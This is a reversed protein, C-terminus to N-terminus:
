QSAAKSSPKPESRPPAFSVAGYVSTQAGKSHGGQSQFFQLLMQPSITENTSTTQYPPGVTWQGLISSLLDPSKATLTESDPPNAAVPLMALVPLPSNTAIEVVPKIVEAKVVLVSPRPEPQFRFPAPGLNPLYDGYAVVGGFLVVAQVLCM